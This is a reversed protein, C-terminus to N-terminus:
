LSYFSQTSCQSIIKNEAYEEHSPQSPRIQQRKGQQQREAQPPM